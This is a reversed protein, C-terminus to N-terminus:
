EIPMTFRLTNGDEDTVYFERNGWTQNVPGEHVPSNEKKPTVLGRRMYKEFLKDVNSVRVNLAIGKVQNGQLSTLQLEADGNVLDVVWDDPSSDAYKLQFDLVSTYFAIAKQMDSCYLIPIIKM